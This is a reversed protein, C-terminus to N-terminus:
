IISSLGQKGEGTYKARVITNFVNRIMDNPVKSFFPEMNELHRHILWKLIIVINFNNESFHAENIYREEWILKYPAWIYKSREVNWVNM